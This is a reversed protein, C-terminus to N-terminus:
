SQAEWPNIVPLGGAEYPAADRTAVAYGHSAAVAAIYGDPTPFGKGASRASAALEAYSRAAARDLPLIRAAFLEETRALAEALAAKRKGDPLCAIGFGIEAITIATLYLTDDRQANLWAAVAPSPAPKTMESIVNTDLVIM